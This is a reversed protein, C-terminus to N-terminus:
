RPAESAVLWFRKILHFQIILKLTFQAWQIAAVGWGREREEAEQRDRERERAM